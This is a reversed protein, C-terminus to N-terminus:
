RGLAAFVGLPLGVREAWAMENHEACPENWHWLDQEFVYGLESLTDRMQLTECYNDGLSVDDDTGDGDLDACAASAPVGECGPGGGSDLYIATGRHGAQQYIEIMTPNDAGISGWGLTGSMSAAFDYAGEYQSAIHLSILGGLSSGLLGNTDAAGYAEEIFPRIDEQVLAAYLDGGGGWWERYFYDEVHTYEYDRDWTNDIGVVLMGDPVSHQLRWGGWIADPDYLNQGDHAYLTHDFIGNQPVWVRLTRAMLGQSGQFEPWRELHPMSARVYSIEGNDDYSYRRAWPDAQWSEAADVFKYGADQPAPIDVQIWWLAGHQQMPAAAWTNFDGALGWDSGDLTCVFLFGDDTEVPLGGSLAIAGLVEDVQAATPAPGDLLARLMAEDAASPDAEGTDGALGTDDALGTDLAKADSDTDDGHCAGLATALALAAWLRSAPRRTPHSTGSLRLHDGGRGRSHHQRDDLLDRTPFAGAPM